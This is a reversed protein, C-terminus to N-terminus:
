EEEADPHMAVWLRYLNRLQKIGGFGTIPGVSLGAARALQPGTLPRRRHRNLHLTRLLAHLTRVEADTAAADPPLGAAVRTARWTGCYRNVTSSTIRGWRLFERKTFDPGRGAAFTRILDLLAGATWGVEAAGPGRTPHRPRRPPRPPWLDFRFSGADGLTAASPPPLRDLLAARVRTRRTKEARREEVTFAPPRRGPERGRPPPASPDALLPETPM